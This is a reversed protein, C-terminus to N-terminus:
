SLFFVDVSFLIANVESEGTQPAWFPAIESQECRKSRPVRKHRATDRVALVRCRAGRCAGRAENLRVVRTFCFRGDAHITMKIKASSISIFGFM